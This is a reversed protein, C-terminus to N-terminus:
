RERLLDLQAEYAARTDGESLTQARALASVARRVDGTELYANALAAHFRHEKDHLRIAIRYHRIALTLEGKREYEAAQLFHFLPDNQQVRALRRRLEVERTRNGTRQQLGAYNYLAHSNGADLRLAHLYAQEGGALDGNRVRMVGANSWHSPYQPDLSLAIAILSLAGPYDAQELRAVALNNYYHSLLRQETIQVPPDRAIVNDGAVDVTFQRPGIRVGANVHNSLYLTGDAQRWSLTQEIEQPYVELGAERAIAMFLMTFSLCNAQRHEYVEAVTYNADERYVVGLGDADFMFEVLQQLRRHASMRSSPFDAHVRTRLEEPMAMVQTPAVPDPPALSAPSEPAAPIPAAQRAIACASHLALFTALAFSWRFM